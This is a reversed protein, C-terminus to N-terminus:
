VAADFAARREAIEAALRLAAVLSAESARGSGAIDLATGHDPSTRVIDLGLTVNVGGEFDIAKLPILAQDHYMCIAADYRARAAPHFMSDAALPGAVALGDERLRRIAPDIIEIEETGISGQEGAHPNLAAVALRPEPCAFDRALARATLRGAGVILESSLSEIARRLAVHVTVPVVRLGSAVLMMAPADPSECLQALFDTHGQHAFGAHYLNAKQIPNTVVASAEGSRAWAVAREIATVVAAANDPVPKGPVAAQPLALPAVPLAQDFRTAAEVPHAVEAVPVKTGLVTALSAVGRPDAILLFPPLNLKARALWAKVTIELGIGAPEGMTVVLPSTARTKAM